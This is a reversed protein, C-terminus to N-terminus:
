INGESVRLKSKEKTCSVLKSM